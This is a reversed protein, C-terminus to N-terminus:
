PSPKAGTSPASSRRFGLGGAAAGAGGAEGGGASALSGRAFPSRGYLSSQTALSAIHGQVEQSTRRSISGSVRRGQPSVEVQCPLM